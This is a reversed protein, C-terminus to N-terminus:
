RMFSSCCCEKIGIFLKSKMSSCLSEFNSLLLNFGRWFSGTASKVIQSRKDSSVTHGLHVASKSINVFEGNVQIGKQTASCYRGKFYLLKSKSGNFMIDAAYRECEGVLTALGSRSPSLLTLGTMLM